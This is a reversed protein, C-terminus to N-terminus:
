LSRYKRKNKQRKGAGAFHELEEETKDLVFQFCLLQRKRDLLPKEKREKKTSLSAIGSVSQNFAQLVYRMISFAAFCVNNLTFTLTKLNIWLFSVCRWNIRFPINKLLM